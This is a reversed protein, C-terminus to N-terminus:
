KLDITRLQIKELDKFSETKLANIFDDKIGKLENLFIKLQELTQKWKSELQEENTYTKIKKLLNENLRIM